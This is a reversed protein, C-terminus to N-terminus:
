LLSQKIIESIRECYASSGTVTLVDETSLEKLIERLLEEKCACPLHGAIHSLEPPFDCEGTNIGIGLIVYPQGNKDTGSEALIGCIKKGELLLDNVWKISLGIGLVDRVAQAVAVGAAATLKM